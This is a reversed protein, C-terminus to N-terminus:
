RVKGVWVMAGSVRDIEEALSLVQGPSNCGELVHKHQGKFTASIHVEPFDVCVMKKEEWQSFGNKTLEKSLKEVAAAPITKKRVGETRVHARGEYRVSGDGLITVSYDPCNGLCGVRRLTISLDNATVTQAISQLSLLLFVSYFAVRM